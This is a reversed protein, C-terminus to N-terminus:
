DNWHKSSISWRDGHTHHSERVCNALRQLNRDIRRLLELTEPDEKPKDPADGCQYLKMAGWVAASIILILVASGAMMAAPGTLEIM